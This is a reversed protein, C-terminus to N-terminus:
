KSANGKNLHKVIKNVRKMDVGVINRITAQPIGSLGLQAITLNQVNEILVLMLDELRNQKRNVKKAM